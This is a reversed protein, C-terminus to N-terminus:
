KHANIAAITLVTSGAAATASGELHPSEAAGVSVNDDGTFSVSVGRMQQQQATYSASGAHSLLPIANSDSPAVSSSISVFSAESRCLCLLVAGLVPVDTCCTVFVHMNYRLARQVRHLVSKVTQQHWRKTLCGYWGPGGVFFSVWRPSHYGDALEDLVVLQSGESGSVASVAAPVASSMRKLAKAAVTSQGEMRRLVDPDSWPGVDDLLTGKSRGGLWDPLNDADIWELLDKKYDSQCIQLVPPECVSLRGMHAGLPIVAQATHLPQSASHLM